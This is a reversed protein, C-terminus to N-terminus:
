RQVRRHDHSCGGGCLPRQLERHRCGAVELRLRRHHRGRGPIGGHRQPLGGRSRGRHRHGHIARDPRQRVPERVLAVVTATAGQNVTQTLVSSTSVQFNTSGGYAGVIAHSGVGLTATTCTAVGATITVSGCGGINTGGSKFAVKGTPTGAGPANASVTATFTVSQGYVSPNVTVTMVTTTGDAGVVQTLAPSTSATDAADGSYIATITHSGIAPSVSCSATGASVPVAVCGAINSGGDRFTVTGTMAPGGTVTATYQVSQGYVSPNANSTVVTATTSLVNQALPASTSTVFNVDGSYTATISHVGAALAGTTCTATGAASVTQAGCGAIDVGGDQFDVSGTRTGSAPATAKVTATFTVNVGTSSPNLSSVITTTTAGQNVVQTLTSSTSASFNVDGSYVATIATTGVSLTNTVCTAKGSAAVAQAGCGAITVGAATFNVTGTRTGSAPAIASVTATFTVNAGTSSPNVSSVLANSTMGQNVTQALTASTSGTFNGDGSYIATISHSGPGAYAIACTATGAAAVAKAGCGTITVGGDEFNVTGTRTGSAPATATVTATYTVTQGSVSPNASAALGTTTGGANVVQMVAASTSGAYTGNGGYVATITHTTATLTSVTCTAVRAAVTRNVCGAINAGGDQFTVTGTPAPSVPTITATFTVSQGYTSPNLGSGLTTTSLSLAHGAVTGSFLAIAGAAFAATLPRAVREGGRRRNGKLSWAGHSPATTPRAGQHPTDM